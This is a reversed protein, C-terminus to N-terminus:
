KLCHAKISVTLCETIAPSQYAVVSLQSRLISIDTFNMVLAANNRDLTSPDLISSTLNTIEVQKWGENKTRKM